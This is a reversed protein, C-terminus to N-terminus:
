GLQALIAQGRPSGAELRAVRGEGVVELGIRLDAAPLGGAAREPWEILLVAEPDDLERIGLYELEEPDSVRYLDLHFVRCGGIEYPEVLTYSPSKVPGQHGLARLFGRALTTKGAGLNGYLEFRGGGGDLRAALAAGLAETAREDALEIIEM